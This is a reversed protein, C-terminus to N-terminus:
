QVTFLVAAIVHQRDRFPLHDEAVFEAQLSHPGPTLNNLDQSLGYQMSVLQGDVSVHIHGKDSPLPPKTVTQSVVTAGELEFQLHLTTGTVQNPTPSLIKLQANTVPRPPASPKSSGCATSALVAVAAIVLAVRKM